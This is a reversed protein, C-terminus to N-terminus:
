SYITTRTRRAPPKLDALKLDKGGDTIKAKDSVPRLNELRLPKTVGDVKGILMCSATITSTDPNIKETYVRIKIPKTATEPERTPARM